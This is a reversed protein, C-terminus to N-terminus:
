AIRYLFGVFKKKTINRQDSLNQRIPPLYRRILLGVNVAQYLFFRKCIGIDQTFNLQNFQKLPASLALVQDIEM